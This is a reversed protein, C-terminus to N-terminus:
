PDEGIRPGVRIVRQGLALARYGLEDRADEEVV